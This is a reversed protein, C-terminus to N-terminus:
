KLILPIFVESQTFNAGYLTVQDGTQVNASEIRTLIPASNSNLYNSTVVNGNIDSARAGADWEEVTDGWYNTTATITRNTMNNIAYGGIDEFGLFVNHSITPELTELPQAVDEEIQIGHEGNGISNYRIIPKLLQSGDNGYPHLFLGINVENNDFLNYEITPQVDTDSGSSDSSGVARIELGYIANNNITNNIIQPYNDVHGLWWSSGHIYIGTSNNRVINNQFVADIKGTGYGTFTEMFVGSGANYKILNNTILPNVTITGGDTWDPSAALHIGLSNHTINCNSLIGSITGGGENDASYYRIGERAYHIVCYSLSSNTSNLRINISGWKNEVKVPANTTFYIPNDEAGEAILTGFVHLESRNTWYGSSQDDNIDFFVTVGPEITLTVGNPVTVDGTILINQSWVTDTTINGSVTNNWTTGEGSEDPIFSSAINIPSGNSTGFETEVTVSGDSVGAPVPAKIKTIGWSNAEGIIANPFTLKLPPAPWISLSTAQAIGEIGILTLSITLIIITLTAILKNRLKNKQIM